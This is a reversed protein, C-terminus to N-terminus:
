WGQFESYRGAGGDGGTGATTYAAAPYGSSTGGHHHLKGAGRREVDSEGHGNM